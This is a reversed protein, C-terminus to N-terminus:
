RGRQVAEVFERARRLSHAAESRKVRLIEYDASNRLVKTRELTDRLRAPYAKRRNLLWEVFQAHVADFRWQRDRGSPGIGIQILAAVTAQFCAYYARNACNNYAGAAFKREAGALSEEARALYPANAADM